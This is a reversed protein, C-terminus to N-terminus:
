RRVLMLNGGADRQVRLQLAASLSAALEDVPIPRFAGTVKLAGLSPEGLVIRRRSYRNTEELVASLPVGHFVLMGSVWQESGKGAPAAPSLPKGSAAFRMSQGPQVRLKAPTDIGVAHPRVELPGQLSVLSLGTPAVQVDFGADRASVIKGGAEVLFARGPDPQVDFRARGRELRVKRVKDDFAFELRTDTDLTVSSGDPLKVTRIEGIATAHAEAVMSINSRGVQFTVFLVVVIMAAAALALRPATAWALPRARAKLTRARGVETAGLREALTWTRELTAYEAANRADAARWKEFEARSEEARPGHMRGWWRTAEERADDSGPM